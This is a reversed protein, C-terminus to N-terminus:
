GVPSQDPNHGIAVQAQADDGLILMWLRHRHLFTHRGVHDCALRILINKPGGVQHFLMLDAANRDHILLTNELPHNGRRIDALSGIQRRINRM